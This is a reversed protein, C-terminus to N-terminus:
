LCQKGLYIAFKGKQLSQDIWLLKCPVPGSAWLNTRRDKEQWQSVATYMEIEIDRFFTAVWSAEWSEAVRYPKNERDNEIRGIEGSKKIASWNRASYTINM